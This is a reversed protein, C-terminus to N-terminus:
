SFGSDQNELVFPTDQYVSFNLWNSFMVSASSRWSLIPNGKKDFYNLPKKIKLGKELDRKYELELTNKSYEPHGLIFFDKEDKLAAIGSIEGKLLIKLNPNQYIYSEDIGSHRSHPMKVIEDLGNLLLDNEVM